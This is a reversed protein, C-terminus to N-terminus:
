REIVVKRNTLSGDTVITATYVGNPLFSADVAIRDNTVNNYSGTYVVRGQMDSIRLNVNQNLVSGFVINFEGTNPNPVIIIDTAGTVSSIGTTNTVLVTDSFVTSTCGSDTVSLTITKLGPTGWSVLHPGMGIGPSATGGAFNWTYTASSSGTGTYTLLDNVSLGEVHSALTFSANPATVPDVSYLTYSAGDGCTGVGYVTINATGSGVTTNLMTTTSSGSWGTGTVVWVYSSAGTIASTIFTATAGECLGTTALIPSAAGVGASPVLYATDSISNGCSNVGTCIIMGTGTGVTVHLSDTTSGAASYGSGIVTWMYSTAGISNGFYTANGLACPVTGTLFLSPTGPLPSSTVNVTDSPGNGCANTGFCIITGTGTGFTVTATNTTTAAASWGTGLVTWNYSTTATATAVYTGSTATGACPLPSSLSIIPLSPLAAPTVNITDAPGNGCVNVGSVIIQGTGTGVTVNDVGTTSAGSWGTGTVSWSYSTAGTSTASYTVTGFCPITAPPTVSPAGPYTGLNVTITDPNSNGCANTGVAIITGTGTGVTATLSSTASTGSWGTGLVTWSYSTAGSSSGTYSASSSGVCPTAGSLSITPTGPLASPTIHITDPTSNGCSNTGFVIITGVGTGATVNLTGTTSATASWGTGSVTWNFTTAGSSTATIIGTSGPCLGSPPTVIPTVPLPSTNATFTDHASTGCASTATAVLTGVGTGLTVTISSTTSSGSWGTGLVTWSYSTAGTSTATYTASTAGSCPMSGSLAITPTPPGSSPTLTTTDPTGNGCANSGYVVFTGTGTGVVPNITGTTSTGSWGTGSVTWHFSTANTSTANVTTSAAGVCPLPSPLTVVPTGPLPSPSVTFTYATSTTCNSNAVASITAIGSGVTLDISDTTSTGSWGTGTVTWTYSVAGTVPTVSYWQTTGTCPASPAIGATPASIATCVQVYAWWTDWLSNTIGGTYAPVSEQITWFDTENVPDVNTHSYDGWRDQSGGFTQYYPLLGHRYTYVPHTTSATDTGMHLAYACSPHITSNAQAFGILLDNNKNVAISPFFYFNHGTGTTPDDIVGNQVPAALTDTEWWMASARNVTGTAPLFVTHACFLKGNRQKLNHIRDDNCQLKDTTGLEPAFDAGGSPASSQWHTTTSPHGVVAITLGAGIAGTIKWLQLQGASGNYTEMCFLNNEATDFTVAPAITFSGSGPTLTGYSMTGGAMMSAYDFVYVVDNLFSGGSTFFNGSVVIWRRNFGVNPFDLWNGSTGGVVLKYMHWTGTPDGTASVAVMIQSYDTEGYCDTVIIWRHYYHDYHVRPDYAGTGHGEQSTWFADLTVSSVVAHTTRNQITISTNIATVAYTSDVDGHTDPPISTGDSLKAQFTDTPAPSAPYEALHPTGASSGTGVPVNMRIEPRIITHILSADTIAPREPREEEGDEDFMPKRVLPQPHERCYRAVEMFNVDAGKEIHGIASTTFSQGFVKATFMFLVGVAFTLKQRNM